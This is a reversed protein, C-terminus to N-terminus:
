SWEGNRIMRILTKVRRFQMLVTFFIAFSFTDISVQKWDVHENRFIPYQIVTAVLWIVTNLFLIPAIKGAITKITIGMITEHRM